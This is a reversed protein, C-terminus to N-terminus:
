VKGKDDTCYRAIADEAVQRIRDVYGEEWLICQNNDCGMLDGTQELAAARCGGGCYYKHECVACRPNAELLDKVRNDVIEMYFSDSLGRKLGIDQVLPFKEQEKCATMPMCPLLRGEPTIYCSYRTAGCLVHNICDGTGSYKMPIIQYEKSNNHLSIINTLMVDMLMGDQFFQPIYQIMAETYECINLANGESNRSWLDTMSVNGIKIMPVGIDSLLKITERITNENGKHICMEVNVSFKRKKCLKLARLAAQEAGKIGRMWDHWGIGDFSISFEPKLNRKEFEDLITETLLWGNTYVQGVTMKHFLIRDILQWFDKRVFPEGGTIDVRLIGCEAMQDILGIAQDHSLEGLVGKPAEMYCHRCFFNCRGTISWFVSRVFRNEYYHYYQDEEIVDGKECVEIIGEQELEGLVETMEGTMFATDLNTEGDCLLLVQFENFNLDRYTNEPRQVLVWAMKNWGRIIHNKKLKYFM